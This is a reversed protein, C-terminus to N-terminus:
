NKENEPQIQPDVPRGPQAPPFLLGVLWIVGALLGGWALLLLLAMMSMELWGGNLM